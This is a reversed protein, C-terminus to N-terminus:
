QVRYKYELKWYGCLRADGNYDSRWRRYLLPDLLCTQSNGTILINNDSEQHPMGQM